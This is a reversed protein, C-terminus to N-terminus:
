TSASGITCYAHRSPPTHSPCLEKAQAPLPVGARVRQLPLKRERELAPGRALEEQLERLQQRGRLLAGLKEPRRFSGAPRRLGGDLIDVHGQGSSHQGAAKGACCLRILSCGRLCCFIAGPSTVRPPLRQVAGSNSFRRRSHGLRGSITHLHNSNHGGLLPHLSVPRRGLNEHDSVTSQM